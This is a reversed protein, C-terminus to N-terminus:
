AMWPRCGSWNIVLRRDGVQCGFWADAPVCQELHAPCHHPINAIMRTVTATAGPVDEWEGDGGEYAYIGLERRRGVTKRLARM